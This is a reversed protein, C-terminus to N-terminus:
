LEFRNESYNGYKGFYEIIIPIMEIGNEENEYWKFFPEPDGLTAAFIKLEETNNTNVLNEFYDYITLNNRVSKLLKAHYTMDLKKSLLMDYLTRILTYQVFGSINKLSDEDPELLYMIINSITHATHRVSGITLQFGSGSVEPIEVCCKDLVLNKKINDSYLWPSVTYPSVTYCATQQFKLQPLTWSFYINISFNINDSIIKIGSYNRTKLEIMKVYEVVTRRINEIDPPTDIKVTVFTPKQYDNLMLM